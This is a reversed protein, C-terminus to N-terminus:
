EVVEDAISVTRVAPAKATKLILGLSLVGHLCNFEGCIRKGECASRDAGRQTGAQTM